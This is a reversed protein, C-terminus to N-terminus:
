RNLDSIHVKGILPLAQATGDYGSDLKLTDNNFATRTHNGDRREGRELLPSIERLMVNLSKDATLLLALLRRLKNCSKLIINGSM